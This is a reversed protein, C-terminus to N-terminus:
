SAPWHRWRRLTKRRSASLAHATPQRIPKHGARALLKDISYLRGYMDNVDRVDRRSWFREAMAASRPWLGADLMEPTITESWMEAEGGLVLSQEEATLQIEGELVFAKTLM